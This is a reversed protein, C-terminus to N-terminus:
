SSYKHLLKKPCQRLLCVPSMQILQSRFSKHLLFSYFIEVVLEPRVSLKIIKFDITQDKLQSNDRKLHYFCKWLHQCINKSSWGLDTNLRNGNEWNKVSEAIKQINAILYFKWICYGAMFKTKHNPIGTYSTTITKTFDFEM